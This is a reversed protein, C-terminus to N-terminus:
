HRFTLAKHKWLLIINFFCCGRERLRLRKMGLCTSQFLLVLWSAWIHRGYM